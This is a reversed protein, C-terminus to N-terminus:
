LTRRSGGIVIEQECSCAAHGPVTLMLWWVSEAITSSMRAESASVPMVRSAGRGVPRPRRRICPRRGRRGVPTRGDPLRLPALVWVLGTDGTLPEAAPLGTVPDRM